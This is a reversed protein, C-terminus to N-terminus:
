VRGSVRVCSIENAKLPTSSGVNLPTHIRVVNKQGTPVAHAAHALGLMDCGMLPPQLLGVTQQIATKDGHVQGEMGDGTANPRAEQCLLSATTGYCGRHVIARREEECSRMMQTTGHQSALPRTM